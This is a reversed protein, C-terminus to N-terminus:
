TKERRLVDGVISESAIEVRRRAHKTLAKSEDISECLSNTYQISM